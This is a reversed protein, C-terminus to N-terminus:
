IKVLKGLKSSKRISEVIHNALYGDSGNGVRKKNSNILEIFNAWESEWSSDGEFEFTQLDPVGFELKRKGYVLTEKGYSGGKGEINLFGRDGYIEFSFLNKWQTSSVHFSATVQQNKMVVFANDEVKTKWFKTSLSGWVEKFEGCFFRCLDIIHVGQDLLEGGGSLDQNFRWEKEMGKRGGYGYRSRIFMIKGIGGRDMIEKAKLIAAHFRHNFGVWLFVQNKKALLIIKKSEASNRGLPKETFIIKKFKIAETAIPLIFKNPVSIIIVDLEKIKILDKWNAIAEAGYQHALKTAKSYDVDSVALLTSGGVKVLAEARRSGMLGAGIIGVNITKKM